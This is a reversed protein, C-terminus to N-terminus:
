PASPAAKLAARETVIAIKRPQVKPQRPIRVTLVGDALVASLKEEDLNEPLTFARKFSGSSRGLVVATEHPRKDAAEFKRAGSITLVHNELTVELDEEKVGPVDAVFSVETESSRVDLAPQFSRTSTATSAGFAAGMFDGVVRDLSSLSSVSHTYTTM